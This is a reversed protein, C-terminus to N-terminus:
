KNLLVSFWGSCIRSQKKLQQNLDNLLTGRLYYPNTNSFEQEKFTALVGKSAVRFRFASLTATYIAQVEQDKKLLDVRLGFADIKKFASEIVQLM